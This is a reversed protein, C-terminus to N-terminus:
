ILWQVFEEVRKLFEARLWLSVHGLRKGSRKMKGHKPELMLMAIRHGDFDNFTKKLDAAQGEEEFCSLSARECPPSKRYEDLETKSKWDRDDGCVLRYLAQETPLAANDPCDDPFHVPWEREPLPEDKPM